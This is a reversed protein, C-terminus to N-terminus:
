RSSYPAKTVIPVTITLTPTYPDFGRKITRKWTRNIIIISARPILAHIEKTTRGVYKLAIIAARTTQDLNAVM